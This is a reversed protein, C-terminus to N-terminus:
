VKRSDRLGIQYKWSSLYKFWSLLVMRYLIQVDHLENIEYKM